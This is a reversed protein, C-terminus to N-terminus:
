SQLARGLAELLHGWGGERAEVNDYGDLFAGQETCILKTGAGAPKFEFTTLSASIRNEGITMTYAFIIRENPVIDHYTTDNRILEGGRFRFRSREYGGVKFEGTFEEVQWGEGEVYWRRKIAPDAFANFVKAPPADYTQELTFTAHTVSRETM